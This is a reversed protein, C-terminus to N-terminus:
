NVFEDYCAALARVHELLGFRERARQVRVHGEPKVGSLLSREIADVFGPRDGAPVLEGCDHDPLAEPLGGVDYAVAPLGCLNAEIAARCLGESKSPVVAVDAAGLWRAVDSRYGLFRFRASLGLEDVLRECAAREPGDGILMLTAKPYKRLLLRFIGIMERHGKIRDFRAVLCLLPAGFPVRLEQRRRIREERSLPRFVEADIGTHLVRVRDARIGYGRMAVDGAAWSVCIGLDEAGALRRNLWRVPPPPLLLDHQHLVTKLGPTMRALARGALSARFQTCHLIQFHGERVLRGIQSLVFPDFRKSSLFLVKVGADRLLEGIPHPARLFCAAVDNGLMKLVPLVDRLYTAVGHISDERHDQGLHDALFLVRHRTRSASEAAMIEPEALVAATM